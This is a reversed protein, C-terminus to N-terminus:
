NSKSGAIRNERAVRSCSAANARLRARCFLFGGRPRNKPACARTARADRFM